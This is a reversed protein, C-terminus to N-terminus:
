QSRLRLLGYRRLPHIAEDCTSRAIVHITASWVCSDDGAFAPSGTRRPKETRDDVDRPYQTVRKRPHRCPFTHGRERSANRGLNAPFEEGETTLPRLSSRTRAAGATEHAIPFSTRVHAYLAASLMRCERRLSFYLTRHLEISGYPSRLSNIARAIDGYRTM